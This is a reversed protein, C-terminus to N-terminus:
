LPEPSQVISKLLLEGRAASNAEHVQDREEIYDSLTIPTLQRAQEPTVTTPVMRVKYKTSLDCRMEFWACQALDYAVIENTEPTRYYHM